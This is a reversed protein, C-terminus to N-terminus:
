QGWPRDPYRQLIYEYKDTTEGTAENFLPTGGTYAMGKPDGYQNLGNEQIWTDIQTKEQLSFVGAEEIAHKEISEQMRWLFFSATSVLVVLVFIIVKKGPMISM